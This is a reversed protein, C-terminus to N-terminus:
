FAGQWNLAVSRGPANLEAGSLGEALHEHYTRNTLNSVALRVKHDRAPKWNLGAELTNFSPTKDELGRSFETATLTQSKVLRWQADLQLTETFQGTWGLTLEDAPMQFLPEHLDNNHGRVLSIKVSVSQSDSAKIRLDADVGRVTVSGLNVTQKCYTQSGCATNVSPDQIEGTIFDNITQHHLSVAYQLQTDRGKIGLELQHATEADVDPSGIYYYGDGRLGSEYRERMDAARFAKSLRVYPRLLPSVDYMAAVSGSLSSDEHRLGTTRAGNNMSGADASVEDQRLSTILRWQKGSLEDQLYLGTATIEADEFPNNSVFTTFAPAQAMMRDPSASMQWYNIGASLTHQSNLYHDYRVDAGQTDFSVDNTVIDDGLWDAWAYITREMEQTYLRVDLQGKDGSYTLGAENLLRKQDPSHITQNRTAPNTPHPRTSGPYWLDEDKQQQHSLRLQIGEYRFRYQGILSTSEYGTKDAEGEPTHYNDHDAYSAGVMLAHQESGANAIVGLQYSNDTSASGASAKVSQDEFTAQPLRLNIVGGLAGTGYLASSGGKVVELQDALALTMLSTVSGAPQASNLRMGDVLLVIREKGLGRIYPNQGHASDSGVAIGAEGRLADGINASQSEFLQQSDLALTSVPTETDVRENGTATVSTAPLEYVEAALAAQSAFLLAISLRSKCCSM